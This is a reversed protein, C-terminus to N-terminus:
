RIAFRWKAPTPDALGSRSIARVEFVNRGPKLNPYRQPSRCPRFPGRDLKCEFRTGTQDSDFAFRAAAKRSGQRTGQLIWTQPAKAKAAPRKSGAAPTAGSAPSGSGGGVEGGSGGTDGGTGAGSTGASAGSGTTTAITLESTAGVESTQTAAIATGPPVLEAYAVEWTGSTDARAEGLFSGLEGAEPLQKRFVRVVAGPEAGSGSAGAETATAFAPPLIGFNPGKPDTELSRILEIFSGGNLSGHNRAVETETNERNLIEIAAGGSGTIANEEGAVDGGILNGEVGATVHSGDVLIGAAGASSVDNGVVENLENEVTIAAEATGSVSNGDIVSGHGGDPELTEIGTEGGAVSNGAITAGFGEQSIGVGAEMRVRNGVITAELAVSPLAGSEVAIGATLPAASPTGDPGVGIANGRVVLDPAAPGARVGAEGGSIYNAENAKPGGIVTEAARGVLIGAHTNAVTSTGAADLGIFNGSITTAVPPGTGAAGTLDIGSTGAGAIVNCGRDCEPTALAAAKLNTGIAIGSAERGPTSAVEIDAGANPAPTSGDPLVGFYNSLVNVGAAGLIELGDGSGDAFVNGAGLGETGIRSGDSGPGVIIGTGDGDAVGTLTVGFWDRSAKFSEAGTVEIGVAAGTMALGEIEVGAAGEVRLPPETGPGDVGVCPGQVGLPTPCLHGNIRLTTTIPPLGSGLVITSGAGGEFDEEEFEIESSGGVIADAEEIAARLTCTGAATACGATGVSLDVEDAASDVAFSEATAIAPLALGLSVLAIAVTAALV